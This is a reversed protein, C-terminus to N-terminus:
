EATDLHCESLPTSPPRTLIIVALTKRLHLATVSRNVRVPLSRHTPLHLVRGCSVIVPLPRASSGWRQLSLPGLASPWVGRALRLEHSPFPRPGPLAVWPPRVRCGPAGLLRPAQGVEPEGSHRAEWCAMPEQREGPHTPSPPALGWPRASSRSVPECTGLHDGCLFAVEQLSLSGQKGGRRGSWSLCCIRPGLLKSLPSEGDGRRQTVQGAHPVGPKM